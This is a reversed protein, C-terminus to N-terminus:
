ELDPQEHTPKPMGTGRAGRQMFVCHGPLCFTRGQRTWLGWRRRPDLRGVKLLAILEKALPVVFLGEANVGRGGGTRSARRSVRHAVPCRQAQFSQAAPLAGDN